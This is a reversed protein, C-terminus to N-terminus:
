KYTSIENILKYIDLPIKKSEAVLSRDILASYTDWEFFSITNLGKETCRKKDFYRREDDVYFIHEDPNDLYPHVISFHNKRYKSTKPKIVTDKDGKVIRSNCCSCATFLNKPHFTFESHISKPAFHEIAIGRRLISECYACRCKQNKLTFTSIHHKISKTDSDAAKWLDPGTFRQTHLFQIHRYESLSFQVTKRINLM